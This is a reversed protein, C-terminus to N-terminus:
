RFAERILLMETFPRKVSAASKDVTETSLAIFVVYSM